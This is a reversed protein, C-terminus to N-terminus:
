KIEFENSYFYIYGKDYTDKVIRYTGKDLESYFRTWDINQKFQGNGDLAYAIEEFTMETRSKLDKWDGDIKRQLKYSKGWGYSDENKDTVIITAGTSTVTDLLVEVIVKSKDRNFTIEETKTGVDDKTAVDMGDPIYAGTNQSESDEVWAWILIKDFLRFEAGCGSEFVNGDKDKLEDIYYKVTYGLGTYKNGNEYEALSVTVLPKTGSEANRLRICDVTVFSAYIIFIIGLAILIRKLLKNM